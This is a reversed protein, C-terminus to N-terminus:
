RVGNMEPLSSTPVSSWAPTPSPVTSRSMPPSMPARTTDVDAARSPASISITGVPAVGCAVRVAPGVAVGVARGRISGPSTTGTEAPLVVPGVQQVDPHM